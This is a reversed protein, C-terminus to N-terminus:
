AATRAVRHEQSRGDIRFQRVLSLLADAESALQSSAASTEEVMAANQQTMQDMQNVTDNVEALAAAQDQSGRAIVEVHQSISMIQEGIRTLVEGTQQVLRSGGGVETAATNILDKIEKAASGSRQALERVEQAVVAFGKGADGARAAEIGANLALLNTQFAIDEIVDIIQEIKQSANEIRGMASIANNVVEASADASGRTAVVIANAERAREASSRVTVTIEEVAAATEELSAAQAETRRSLEAASQSMQQGNGQILSVNAIITGITDQLRTLSRNFDNRLDELRGVFPTEITASIDGDALRGLGAALANVAFEIQRDIEQKELDNRQREAEAAAREQESEAEIRIKALANEKFVGLARAMEGIEDARADGNVGADLDGAALRRMAATIQTIPGKFTVVLGIGAFVAILVGLMTATASIRNAKDRESGAVERQLAAFATLNSWIGDIDSAAAKFSEARKVSLGVLDGARKAISDVLPLLAAVKDHADKAVAPDSAFRDADARLGDLATKLRSLNEEEPAGLFRSARSDVTNVADALKQTAALLATAEAMPRDLTGFVRTAERSKVTSAGQLKIGAPRLLNIARDVTGITGDNVVGLDLQKKVVAVGDAIANGLAVQDIPLVSTIDASATALDGFEKKLLDMKEQPTTLMNYDTVIKSILAAGRNLKEAQRLLGKAKSEDAALTERVTTAYKILEGRARMLAALDGELGARLTVEDQHLSWLNAAKAGIADTGAIAADMETQGELGSLGAHTDKLAASQTAIEEDLAARTQENTEQLFTTMSVYVKKFGSLTQLVTNSIDMRGQLMNSAYLGTLGVASISVVFPFIFVLVKTQIKFRALLRDVLM